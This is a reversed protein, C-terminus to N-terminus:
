VDKSIPKVGRELVKDIRKCLKTKPLCHSAKREAVPSLCHPETPSHPIRCISPVLSGPWYPYQSVSALKHCEINSARNTPPIHFHQLARDLISKETYFYAISVSHFKISPQPPNLHPLPAESHVASRRIFLLHVKSCNSTIISTM